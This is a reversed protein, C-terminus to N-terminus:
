ADLYTYTQSWLLEGDECVCTASVPPNVQPYVIKFKTYQETFNYPVPYALKKATNYTYDIRSGVAGDGDTYLHTVLNGAEDYVFQEGAIVTGDTDYRTLAATSGAENYTYGVTGYSTGDAGLTEEKVFRGNEDYSYLTKSDMEGADDFSYEAVCHGDSDYEYTVRRLTVGEGDTRVVASIRGAADYSVAATMTDDFLTDTYVCLIERGKTDYSYVKKWVLTNDPFRDTMLTLHGNKDYTYFNIETNNGEADYSHVARLIQKAYVPAKGEIRDILGALYQRLILVDKMTISGDGNCDGLTKSIAVHMDALYKREILVDKTTVAGDGNADGYLYDGAAATLPALCLVM